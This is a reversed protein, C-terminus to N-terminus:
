NQIISNKLSNKTSNLHSLGYYVLIIVFYYFGQKPIDTGILNIYFGILFMLSIRNRKSYFIETFSLLMLVFGIIGKEALSMALYTDTVSYYFVKDPIEKHLNTIGAYIKNDANPSSLAGIGNGFPNEYFKNLSYEMFIGRQSFANKEAFPNFTSIFKQLNDDNLVYVISGILVIFSTFAVLLVRKTIKIKKPLYVALLLLALIILPGRSFTTVAVAILLAVDWYNKTKNLYYLLILYLCALQTMIRFDFVFGMNRPIARNVGLDITYTPEKFIIGGSFLNYM